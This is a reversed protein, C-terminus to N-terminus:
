KKFYNKQGWRERKEKQVGIIQLCNRKHNDYLDCLCEESKKVRKRQERRVPYNWFGQRRVLVNKEEAQDMRSTISEIANEIESMTNKMDLMEAQNNKKIQM